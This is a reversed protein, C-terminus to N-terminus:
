GTTEFRHGRCRADEGWCESSTTSITSPDPTERIPVIRSHRDRVWHEADSERNGFRLLDPRKIWFLRVRDAYGLNVAIANLTAVQPLRNYQGNLLRKLTSLSILTGSSEEIRACLYEFDRQRLAGLDPFGHRAALEQMGTEILQRDTIM